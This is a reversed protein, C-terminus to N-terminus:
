SRAALRSLPHRIAQGWRWTRSQLVADREARLDLVQRNLAEVQTRIAALESRAEELLARTEEHQRHMASVHWSRMHSDLRAAFIASLQERMADRAETSGQGAVEAQLASEFDLFSERLGPRVEIGARECLTTAVDLVSSGPAIGRISGTRRCLRDATWAISRLAVLEHELPESWEWESDVFHWRGEPDVIFNGPSVDLQISGDGTPIITQAAAWWRRLLAALHASGAGQMALEAAILDEANEGVVVPADDRQRSLPGARVPEAAQLPQLKWAGEDHVLARAERWAKARDPVGLFLAVDSIRGSLCGPSGCVVLFSNALEMGLGADLASHFAAMPDANIVAAGAADSTPTRVFQKVLQTGEPDDFMRDRVLVTPLKYDPYAAFWAQEDFGGAVLLDRLERRSWTRVGSRDGWYGEIGIWPIGLHDETHSLLYKLGWRNEIALVLCGQPKLLARVQALMTEPGQRGGNGAGSYELVGCVVIVDFSAPSDDPRMAMFDGLSGSMIRANALGQVRAAAVEARAPSGELGIVDAGSEAIKRTLAGTGCGVDLVDTDPGLLVPLLLNERQPSLHYRTPWDRIHRALEDSGSSRDTARTMVHLLEDEAGDLYPVGEGLIEVSGTGPGGGGGAAAHDM